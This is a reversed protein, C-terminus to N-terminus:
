PLKNQIAAIKQRVKKCKQSSTMLIINMRKFNVIQMAIIEQGTANRVNMSSYMIMREGMPM